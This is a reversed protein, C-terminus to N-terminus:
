ADPQGADLPAPHQSRTRESRPRPPDLPVRNDPKDAPPLEPDDTVEVYIQRAVGPIVALTTRESRLILTGDPAKSDVTMVAGPFLGHDALYDIIALDAQVVEALHAIRLQQGAAVDLLPRTPRRAHDSGPIPTGLSSTTPHGLLDLLLEEVDDSIVQEWRSAEHHATTWDVGIIDTLLREALRHRRISTEARALGAATLTLRRRDPNVLGAEQLRSIMESVAAPTHGLRDVLRAQILETGEEALLYIAALYSEAARPLQIRDTV